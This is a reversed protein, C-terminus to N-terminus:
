MHIHCNIDCKLVVLARLFFVEIVFMVKVGLVFFFLSISCYRLVLQNVCPRAWIFKEFSNLICLHHLSLSLHISINRLVGLIILLHRHILPIIIGTMNVKSSDSSNSHLLIRWSDELSLFMHLKLLNIWKVHSYSTEIFSTKKSYYRPLCRWLNLQLM